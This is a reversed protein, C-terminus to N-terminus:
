PRGTLPLRAGNITGAEESCLFLMASAILSPPTSKGPSKKSAGGAPAEEPGGISDVMLLNATAGSGSLESALALVLADSASKAMAYLASKGTPAQARPSTVALFRGWGNSSLPGVFARVVNLTTEVLSARLFEWDATVIERIPTGGRYGGVLHIVVDVRGLKTVILRAWDRAAHEDSLDVVSTMSREAAGPLARQLAALHEGSRGSLALTAGADLFARAVVPGLLGTAGSIAVIKDKLM